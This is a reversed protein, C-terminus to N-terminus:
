DLYHPFNWAVVCPSGGESWGYGLRSAPRKASRHAIGKPGTFARVGGRHRHLRRHRGSLYHSRSQQHRLAARAATAVARRGGGRGRNTRRRGPNLVAASGGISGAFAARWPGDPPRNGQHAAFGCLGGGGRHGPVGSSACDFRVPLEDEAVKPPLGPKLRGWMQVGPSEVSFDTLLLSGNAFHPQQTLPAWLAPQNLSLGSFERPAVGIVIAPKGNVRITGGIILPDAGFHRQWFGQSLVVVPEAGPAEDHAPDLMRGLGATAGLDSFFNGTVFHAELQKDEGEISVKTSNLALVASLTRSHQRFFAMEPYPLAFAYSQQARRHFRVLTGPDRVNLPRLVMLDFFGFAAVNVGIGIALMLVAALTFGPSRRLMRAAYSLDQSLSEMWTWGWADRAQERIHLTNGFHAQGERAAMERHVEMDDALEQDFRRRNLLYRLRRFFENM